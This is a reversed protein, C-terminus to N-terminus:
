SEDADHRKLLASRRMYLGKLPLCIERVPLSTDISLQFDEVEPFINLADNWHRNRLFVFILIVEGLTKPYIFHFFALRYM